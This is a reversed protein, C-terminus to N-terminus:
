SGFTYAYTTYINSEIRDKILDYVVQGYDTSLVNVKKNTSTYWNHDGDHLLQVDALFGVGLKLLKKPLKNLKGESYISYVDGLKDLKKCLSPTLHIGIACGNEYSCGGLKGIGRPNASFHKVTENLFRLRKKQIKTMFKHVM